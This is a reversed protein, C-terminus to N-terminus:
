HSQKLRMIYADEGNQYFSTFQGVIFFHHKKYFKIAALNSVAVELEITTIQKKEFENLLRQLLQSGVGKNRMSPSVGIMLIKGFTESFPVGIIFGVLRQYYQATWFGWPCSEYFYTFLSPNYQESLVKSALKLVEYMQDVKFQQIQFVDKFFIELIFIKLTHKIFLHPNM